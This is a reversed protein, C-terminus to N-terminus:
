LFNFSAFNADNKIKLIKEYFCKNNKIFNEM